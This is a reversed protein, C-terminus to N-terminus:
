KGADYCHVAVFDYDWGKSNNAKILDMFDYWWNGPGDIEYRLENDAFSFGETRLPYIDNNIYCEAKAKIENEGSNDDTNYDQPTIIFEM